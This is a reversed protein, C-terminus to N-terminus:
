IIEMLKLAEMALWKGPEDISSLLFRADIDQWVIQFKGVTDNKPYIAIDGKYGDKKNKDKLGTSQGVTEPIVEVSIWPTNIPFIFSRRKEYVGDYQEKYWGYVWEWNGVRKGRYNRM